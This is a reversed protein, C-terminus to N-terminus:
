YLIEPPVSLCYFYLLWCPIRLLHTFLSHWNHLSICLVSLLATQCCLLDLFYLFLVCCVAIDVDCFHSPDLKRVPSLMLCSHVKIHFYFNCPVLGKMFILKLKNHSNPTLFEFITCFQAFQYESYTEMCYTSTPIKCTTRTCLSCLFTYVYSCQCAHKVSPIAINYRKRWFLFVDTKM